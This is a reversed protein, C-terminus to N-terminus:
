AATAQGETATDPDDGLDHNALSRGLICIAEQHRRDSIAMFNRTLELMLRQQPTAKGAAPTSTLGDFFYGVEVGLAQALQYLRGVSIRNIGTEYKQTQQYTLGIPAALEQQTLGLLLRRERLRAGVHRDIDQAQKSFARSDTMSRAVSM